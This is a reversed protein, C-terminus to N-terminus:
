SRFKKITAARLSLQKSFDAADGKTVNYIQEHSSGKIVLSPAFAKFLAKQTEKYNIYFAAIL